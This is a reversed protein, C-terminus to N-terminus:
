QIVDVLDGDILRSQGETIIHDGVKLEKSIIEIKDNFRQGPTVEIRKATGNDETFLYRVNSGQMKLVAHSPLVLANTSEMDITVRGFMGPRLKGHTNNVSIEIEFSRSQNNIIPSIRFVKGSFIEGPYVDFRVSVEMGNKINRMFQESVNVIAKLRNTEIVSLVAAKGATSNPSGSYMEGAEFYKHSVIGNFPAKLTTNKSLFDVNEKAVEYQAKLQDYQQQAISGYQKLTDLRYYDAELNNLQIIAQNLQADNMRVLVQDKKVKDGMEVYIEEVRGPSTPAMHVTNFAEMTATYEVTRTIEEEGLISVRVPERRLTEHETNANSKETCSSLGLLVLTFISVIIGTKKM